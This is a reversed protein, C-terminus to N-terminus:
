IFPLSGIRVLWDVYENFQIEGDRNSDLDELSQELPKATIGHRLLDAHLGVFENRDVAGSADKDFYRFYTATNSLLKQQEETLALKGFRNHVRWWAVFENYDVQGNGDRDIIQLAATLEKDSLYYGMDYAMSRFEDRTLYGKKEKDTKDFVLKSLSVPGPGHKGHTEAM